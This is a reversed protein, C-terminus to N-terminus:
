EAGIVEATGIQGTHSELTFVPPLPRRPLGKFFPQTSLSPRQFLFGVTHLLCRKCVYLEVCRQPSAM